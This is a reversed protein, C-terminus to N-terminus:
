KMLQKELWRLCDATVENRNIDNLMEHRGDKYLKYEISNIGAAKWNKILTMFGKGQMGVPDKDGAFAYVPLDKRIRDLQKKDFTEGLSRFLYNVMQVSAIFGCLPDAIYKDVEAIDRSLWDFPTRAPKFGANFKGFILKNILKSKHSPGFAKTLIGSLGIGFPLLPDKQGNTGSLILGDITASYLEAYRQAFFSGMSHGMLFFKKGTHSRRLQKQLGHLDEIQKNVWDDGPIGLLNDKAAYSGHGRHDNAYVGIGQENLFNAFRQYRLAYEAMGHAVLVIAKIEGGPLWGYVPMQYGDPCNFLFQSVPM